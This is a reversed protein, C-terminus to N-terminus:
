PLEPLSIIYQLFDLSSGQHDPTFPSSEAQLLCDTVLYTQIGLGGAALDERADNGVMMAEHPQVNLQELVEQYFAPNPKCAHMTEFSTILEFDTPSLGAWHIRRKVARIPFLPNTAVALRYGKTKLCKVADVMYENSATAARAKEFSTEYFQDFANIVSEHDTGMNKFFSRYFVAENTENGGTNKLMLRTGEWLRKQFDAPDMIPLFTETLSKMYYHMFLDTNMTLLTGDLDFLITNM